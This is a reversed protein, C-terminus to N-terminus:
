DNANGYLGVKAYQTGNSKKWVSVAVFLQNGNPNGNLIRRITDPDTTGRSLYLELNARAEPTKFMDDEEDGDDRKNLQHFNARDQRIIQEFNTLRKGSSSLRDNASIVTCYYGISEDAKAASFLLSVALSLAIVPLKIVLKM